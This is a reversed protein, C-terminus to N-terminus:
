MGWSRKGADKARGWPQNEETSLEEEQVATKLAMGVMHKPNWTDRFVRGDSIMMISRQQMSPNRQLGTKAQLAMDATHRHEVAHASLLYFGPPNNDSEAHYDAEKNVSSCTYRANLGVTQQSQQLKFAQEQTRQVLPRHIGSM